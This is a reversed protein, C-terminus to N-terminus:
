QRVFLVNRDIEVHPVFRCFPCARVFRNERRAQRGRHFQSIVKWNWAFWEQEICQYFTQSKSWNRMQHAGAATHSRKCKQVASRRVSSETVKGERIYKSKAIGVLLRWESDNQLTLLCRDTCFALSSRLAVTMIHSSTTIISRQAILATSLVNRSRHEVSSYKPPLTTTNLPSKRWINGTKGFSGSKM